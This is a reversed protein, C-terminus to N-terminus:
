FRIRVGLQTGSFDFGDPRSASGTFRVEIGFGSRGDYGAGYSAFTGDGNVTASARSSKATLESIVRGGGAFVFFGKGLGEPRLVLDAGLKWQSADTKAGNSWERGVYDLYEVFFSVAMREAAMLETFACYGVAGGFYDQTNQDQAFFASARWGFRSKTPAPSVGTPGAPRPGENGKSADKSATKGAALGKRPSPQAPPSHRPGGNEGAGREEMSVGEEELLADVIREIYDRRIGLARLTGNRDIVGYTPWYEVRWADTTSQWPRCVPYTIGLSKVAPGMLDGTNGLIGIFLIGKGAYEDVMRINHPIADTCAESWTAWFDVIVIKGKMDEPGVRGNFWTDLRLKPAPRGLLESHREWTETGPRWHGERALTAVKDDAPRIACFLATHALASLIALLSPAM